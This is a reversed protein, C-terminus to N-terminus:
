AAVAGVRTGDLLTQAADLVRDKIRDFLIPAYECGGGPNTDSWAPAAWSAVYPLTFPLTDLGCTGLVLHATSEAEVEFVARLLHEMRMPVLPPNDSHLVMHASEHALTAVTQADGLGDTLHITRSGPDTYGQEGDPTAPGFDIFYGSDSVFRSLAQYLGTPAAGTLLTPNDRGAVQGRPQMGVEGTKPHPAWVPQRDALWEPSQHVAQVRQLLTDLQRALHGRIHNM